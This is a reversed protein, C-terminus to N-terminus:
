AAQHNGADFGTGSEEARRTGLRQERDLRRSTVETPIIDAGVALLEQNEIPGVRGSGDGDDEVPLGPQALPLFIIPTIESVWPSSRGSATCASWPDSSIM